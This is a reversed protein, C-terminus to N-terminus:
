EIYLEYTQSIYVFDLPIKRAMGVIQVICYYIQIPILMCDELVRNMITKDDCM